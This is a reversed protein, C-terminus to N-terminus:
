HPLCVQNRMPSSLDRGEHIALTEDTLRVHRVSAPFRRALRRAQRWTGDVIIIQLCSFIWKQSSGCGRFSVGRASAGAHVHSIRPSTFPRKACVTLGQRIHDASSSKLEDTTISEDSPFLVVVTAPDTAELIADLREEQERVEAIFVESKDTGLALPALAGTNSGRGMEKVHMYVLIRHPFAAIADAKLAEGAGCICTYNPLWCRQCLQQTGTGFKASALGFIRETLVASRM